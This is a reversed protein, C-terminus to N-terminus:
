LQIVLKIRYSFALSSAHTVQKAQIKVLIIVPAAKILDEFYVFIEFM